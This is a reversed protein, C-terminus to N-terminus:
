QKLLYVGVGSAARALAADLTALPLQLRMALELYAADYATLGFRRSIDPLKQFRDSIGSVDVTIDYDSLRKLFDVSDHVMCRNRREGMILSNVVEALWGSPVHVGERAARLLLQDTSDTKEDAFHWALTVSADLVFAM